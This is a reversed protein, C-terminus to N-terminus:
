THQSPIRKGTGPRHPVGTRIPALQRIPARISPYQFMIRARHLGFVHWIVYWYMSLPIYQICVLVLAGYQCTSICTNQGTNAHITLSYTRKCVLYVPLVHEICMLVDPIYQIRTCVLVFAGYSYMCQVVNVHGIRILVFHSTNFVYQYTNLVVVQYQQVIYELM